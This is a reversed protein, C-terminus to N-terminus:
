APHARPTDAVCDPPSSLEWVINRVPSYLVTPTMPEIRTAGPVIRKAHSLAFVGCENMTYGLATAPQPIPSSWAACLRATWFTAGRVLPHSRTMSVNKRAIPLATPMAVNPDIISSCYWHSNPRDSGAFAGLAATGYKSM